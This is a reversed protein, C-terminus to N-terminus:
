RAADLDARTVLADLTLGEAALAATAGEQRDVVTLCQVVVLGAAQAAHVAQLISAGSTTTDELVAVKTGPPVNALGEIKVKTGHDKEGRRV